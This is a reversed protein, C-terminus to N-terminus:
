IDGLNMNNMDVLFADKITYSMYGNNMGATFIINYVNGIQLDMKTDFSIAWINQTGDSLMYKPYKNLIMNKDKVVTHKVFFLPEENSHGYPELKSLETLFHRNFVNLSVECDVNYTKNIEYDGYKESVIDNIRESFTEILENKISIGVAMKHGGFRELIDGTEKVASFLDIDGVSRGSGVSIGDMKSIIIAPRLYKSSISSAAIGVVGRHWGKGSAVIVSQQTGAVNKEIESVVLSQLKRRENNIEDLKRAINEVEDEDDKVFMDVAISADYLRGAANIRPAISFGVNRSTLNGNIKSVRKLYELGVCSADSNSLGFKVCVRNEDLLPVIDALTGLAVLDLYKKLNPENDSKFFNNKRLRNRLAVLLNFAVGVGSLDKFPFKSGSRKPNIIAYANPLEDQPEHHDTIIVDIGIEKAFRIEDINTIGNDVTILLTAGNSHASKIAALSLGYGDERKPIYFNAHVGIDQFFKLMISTATVGDVDYDGVIFIKERSKIAKILRDVAIDMDQLLFPSYLSSLSPYLFNKIDKSTNVGRNKLIKKTIEYLTLDGEAIINNNFCREKIFVNKIDGKVSKLEISKNIEM